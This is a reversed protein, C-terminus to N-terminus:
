RYYINFGGPWIVKHKGRDILSEGMVFGGTRIWVCQENEMTPSM